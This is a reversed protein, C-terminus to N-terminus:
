NGVEAKALSVGRDVVRRTRWDWIGLTMEGDACHRIESALSYTVGKVQGVQFGNAEVIFDGTELGIQAAPSGKVVEKVECGHVTEVVVVGLFWRDTVTLLTPVPKTDVAPQSYARFAFTLTATVILCSFFQIRKAQNPM